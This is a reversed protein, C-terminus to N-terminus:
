MSVITGEDRLSLGGRHLSRLEGGESGPALNPAGDLISAVFAEAPSISPGEPEIRQWGQGCDVRVEDVGGPGWSQWTISMIGDDGYLQMDGRGWGNDFKDGVAGGYSLSALVGNALRAQVSSFADVRHRATEQFAAVRARRRAALWLMLDTVHAGIDALPGGGMEDPNTRWHSANVADEVVNRYATIKSLRAVMAPPMSKGPHIMWGTNSVQSVNIQRLSGILGEQLRRRATRFLSNGRSNYGVTLVRGAKEAAAVMARADESTLAMPKDVLVHRGRELAALTPATHANHPTSVVVADLEVEDLMQRWDTYAASSAWNM